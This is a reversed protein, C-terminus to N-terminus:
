VAVLYDGRSQLFYYNNVDRELSLCVQRCSSFPGEIRGGFRLATVTYCIGQWIALSFIKKRGFGGRGRWSLRVRRLPPLRIPRANPRVKAAREPRMQGRTRGCKPRANPACKAAREAARKAASQAGNPARKVAREAAYEAEEQRFSPSFAQKKRSFITYNRRVVSRSFKTRRRQRSQFRVGGAATFVFLM